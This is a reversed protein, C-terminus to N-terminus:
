FFAVGGGEWSKWYCVAKLLRKLKCLLRCNLTIADSEPNISENLGNKAIVSENLM